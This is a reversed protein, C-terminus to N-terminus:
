HRQQGPPKARRPPNRQAGPEIQGLRALEPKYQQGQGLGIRQYWRCKEIRNQRAHNKRHQRGREDHHVAVADDHLQDCAFPQLLGQLHGSDSAFRDVRVLVHDNASVAAAALVQGAHQFALPDRVHCEVEIRVPDPLRRRCPVRHHETVRSTQLCQHRGAQRTGACHYNGKNLYLTSQFDKRVCARMRGLYRDNHPGAIVM